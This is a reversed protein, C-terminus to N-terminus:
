EENGPSDPIYRIIKCPDCDLIRCLDNLTNMTVSRNKRLSDVTGKSIHYQRELAYQSLGKEKLTEWLPDFVIMDWAEKDKKYLYYPMSLFIPIASFGAMGKM